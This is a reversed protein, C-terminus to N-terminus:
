GCSDRFFHYFVVTFQNIKSVNSHQTKQHSGTQGDTIRRLLINSSLITYRTRRDDSTQDHNEPIALSNIYIIQNLPWAFLVGIFQLLNMRLHSVVLNSSAISTRAFQLKLSTITCAHVVSIIRTYAHLYTTQNAHIFCVNRYCCINAICFICLSISIRVNINPFQM